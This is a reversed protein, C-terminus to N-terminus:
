CASYQGETRRAVQKQGPATSACVCIQHTVAPTQSPQFMPEEAGGFLYKKLMNLERIRDVVHSVLM